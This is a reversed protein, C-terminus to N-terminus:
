KSPDFALGNVLWEDEPDVSSSGRQLEFTPISKDNIRAFADAIVLDPVPRLALASVQAVNALDVGPLSADPEPPDDGIVIKMIPVQYNPDPSDWMRGTTMKMVNVLYIEDGKKTPTGDM